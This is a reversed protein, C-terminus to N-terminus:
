AEGTWAPMPSATFAAAFDEVYRQRVETPIANENAVFRGFEEVPFTEALMSNVRESKEASLIEANMMRCLQIARASPAQNHMHNLTADLKFRTLGFQDLMEHIYGATGGNSKTLAVPVVADAGFYKRFALIAPGWLVRNVDVERFLWDEFSWAVRHRHVFHTYTSTLFDMQPRISLVVKTTEAGTHSLIRAAAWSRDIGGLGFKRSPMFDHCLTEESCIVVKHKALFPGFFDATRQEIKTVNGARYASLYAGLYRQGRIDEPLILGIGKRSLAKRSRRLVHQLATTATKPSGPHLILTSM